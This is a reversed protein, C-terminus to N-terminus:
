RRGWVDVHRDTVALVNLGRLGAQDVQGRIEDSTYASLLSRYFEERAVDSQGAAHTDVIRQAADADAPRFLDRLFIVGGTTTVRAIERWMSAADTIHHLLSNSTVIDFSADAFPLRKADARQFAVRDTLAAQRTARAAWDLMPQSADAGVITWGPRAHAIRLTIDGPGCGLDLVRAEQIGGALEILRDVFRQNVGGFDAEAYAQVEHPLDMLEPEAIREM